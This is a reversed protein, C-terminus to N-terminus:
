RFREKCRLIPQLGALFFEDMKKLMRRRHLDLIEIISTLAAAFAL